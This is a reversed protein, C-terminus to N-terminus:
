VVRTAPYHDRINNTFFKGKSPAAELSQFVSLPVGLYRYRAGSHFEVYLAGSDEDFGIAAVNSSRVKKMEPM